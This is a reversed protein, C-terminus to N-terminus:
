GACFVRYVEDAADRDVQDMLAEVDSGTLTAALKLAELVGDLYYSAESISFNEFVKESGDGVRRFIYACASDKSVFDINLVPEDGLFIKSIKRSDLFRKNALLDRFHDAVGQPASRVVLDGVSLSLRSMASDRDIDIFNIRFAMKNGIM